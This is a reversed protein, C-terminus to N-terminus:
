LSVGRERLLRKVNFKAENHATVARDREAAVHMVEDDLQRAAEECEAAHVIAEALAADREWQDDALAQVTRDADTSM